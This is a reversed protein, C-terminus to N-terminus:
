SRIDEDAGGDKSVISGLYTFSDVQEIENEYIFLKEGLTANVRMEKIKNVNINLGAVKAEEQICRLKEEMDTFRQALLCYDDAFDLDKLRDRMGWQIGRKRAGLMKRMVGDLVLFFITPSSVARIYEQPLRSINLSSEKMYYRANLVRM